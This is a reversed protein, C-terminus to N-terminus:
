RAPLIQVERNKLQTIAAVALEQAATSATATVSPTITPTVHGSGRVPPTSHAFRQKSFLYSRLANLTAVTKSDVALAVTVQHVDTRRALATLSADTPNFGTPVPAFTVKPTLSLDVTTTFTLKDAMTPPAGKDGSLNTFLVLNFFTDATKDVGIRGTIPYVHNAQVIHGDCYRQGRRQAANLKTLLDGLTDTLTFVRENQRTRNADGTVGLAATSATWAGLFNSGAGFNNDETMTLDFTYAVGTSFIVKFVNRVEVYRPGAFLDPSFNNIEEPDAEYSELLRQAIPDGAQDEHNAALRKLENLVFERTAERTECRIQRVIDYTSVGGVDEPVPHIACCSLLLGAAVVSFSRIFM